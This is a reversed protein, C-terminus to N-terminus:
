ATATRPPPPPPKNNTTSASETRTFTRGSATKKETEVEPIARNLVQMWGAVRKRMRMHLYTKSCKIHYQLYSRFGSLASVAKDKGVGSVHREEFAFSIFGAADPRPPCIGVIEGPPDRSFSAPPANRVTRQAEGLEQLFVKCVAKDTVDPFDVLFIVIVKGPISCIYMSEKKHYEVVMTPLPPTTKALMASFARDLPGGLVHRRLDSIDNLFKEPDAITDCDFQLALDYGKAPAVELGPFLKDLLQQSGLSKLQPVMKMAMNVKVINPTEPSSSINFSVDDFDFFNIECPERKGEVIRPRLQEYLIASKPELCILGKLGAAAAM